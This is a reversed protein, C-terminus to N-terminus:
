EGNLDNKLTEFAKRYIDAKKLERVALDHRGFHELISASNEHLCILSYLYYVLNQEYIFDSEKKHCYFFGNM